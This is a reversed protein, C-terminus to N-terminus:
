HHKGLEYKIYWDDTRFYKGCGEKIEDYNYLAKYCSLCENREKAQKELDEIHNVCYVIVGVLAIMLTIDMIDKEM